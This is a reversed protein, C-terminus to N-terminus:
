RVVARLWPWWGRAAMRSASVPFQQIGGCGAHDVLRAGHSTVQLYHNPDYFKCQIACFGDTERARAVLDIGTDSKGGNGPWESWMWVESFQEVYLPDTGLYAQM